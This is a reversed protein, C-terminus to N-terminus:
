NFFQKIRYEIPIFCIPRTHIPCHNQLFHGCSIDCYENSVKEHCSICSNKGCLGCPTPSSFDCFKTRCNYHQCVKRNERQDYLQIKCIKCLYLGCCKCKWIHSICCNKRCNFCRIFNSHIDCVNDFPSRYDNDCKCDGVCQCYKPFCQFCNIFYSACDDCEKNECFECSNIINKSSKLTNCITCLLKNRKDHSHNNTEIKKDILLSPILELSM